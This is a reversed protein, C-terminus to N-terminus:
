VVVDDIRAKQINVVETTTLSRFARPRIIIEHGYWLAPSTHEPYFHCRVVMLCLVAKWKLTLMSSVPKGSKGYDAYISGATSFLLQETVV